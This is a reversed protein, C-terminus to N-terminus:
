EEARRGAASDRVWSNVNICVAEPRRAWRFHDAATGLNKEDFLRHSRRAKRFKQWVAAVADSEAFSDDTMRVTLVRGKYKRIGNEFNVKMGRALYRNKGAMERWDAMMTRAERGGFGIKDGPYYGVLRQSVPILHYLARIRMADIGKYAKIWPTGCAVLIVGDVAEVGRWGAYMCSLHGGLSHGLLFVGKEPSQERAFKVATDIDELMERFGYNVNRSARVSSEGHGRQEVLYVDHGATQLAEALPTYYSVSVGLAPLILLSVGGEARETAAKLAKVPVCYDTATPLLQWAPQETTNM